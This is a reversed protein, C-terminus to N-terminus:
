YSLRWIFWCIRVGSGDVVSAGDTISWVAASDATELVCTQNSTIHCKNDDNWYHSVGVPLTPELMVPPTLIQLDVTGGSCCLFSVRRYLFDFTLIIKGVLVASSGSHNLEMKEPSCWTNDPGFHFWMLYVPRNGLAADLWPWLGSQQHLEHKSQLFQHSQLKNRLRVFCSQSDSSSCRITKMGWHPWSYWSCEVSYSSFRLPLTSACLESMMNSQNLNLRFEECSKM